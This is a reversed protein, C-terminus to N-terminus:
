KKYSQVIKGILENPKAVWYETDCVVVLRKKARSLATNIVKKGKLKADATSTFRPPKDENCARGDCVSIIVTDWEKGQSKHITIIHNSLSDDLRKICRM